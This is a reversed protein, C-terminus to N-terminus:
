PSPASGPAFAALWAVALVAVAAGGLWAAPTPVGFNGIVWVSHGAAALLLPQLWFAVRKGRASGASRAHLASALPGLFAVIMLLGGLTNTWLQEAPVQYDVIATAGEPPVAGEEVDVAEGKDDVYRTCTSLPLVFCAALVWAALFAARKLM